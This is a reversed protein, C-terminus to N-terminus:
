ASEKSRRYAQEVLELVDEVEREVELISKELKRDIRRRRWRRRPLDRYAEITAIGKVSLGQMQPVINRARADESLKGYRIERGYYDAVREYANAWKGQLRTRVQVEVRGDPLRLRVHVARYGSHPTARLDTIMGHPDPDFMRAITAAVADQQTLTMDGEIRVGALDQIAQLPFNRERNLKQRLTDETKPRSAFKFAM